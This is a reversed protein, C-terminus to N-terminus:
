RGVHERMRKQILNRRAQLDRYTLTDVSTEVGLGAKISDMNIEVALHDIGLERGLREGHREAFLM